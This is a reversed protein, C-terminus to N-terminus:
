PTMSWKYISLVVKKFFSKKPRRLENLSPLVKPARQLSFTETNIATSTTSAAFRRDIHFHIDRPNMKKLEENLREAYRIAEVSWECSAFHEFRYRTAAGGESTSMYRKVVAAAKSPLNNHEFRVFEWDSWKKPLVSM